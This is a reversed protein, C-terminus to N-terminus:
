SDLGLIRAPNDAVMTRVDKESVGSDLLQGTVRRFAEM